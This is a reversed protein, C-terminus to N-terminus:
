TTNSAVRREAARISRVMGAYAMPFTKGVQWIGHELVIVGLEDASEASEFADAMARGMAETGHATWNVARVTHGNLQAVGEARIVALIEDSHCHVITRCEKLFPNNSDLLRRHVHWHSVLESSPPKDPDGYYLFEGAREEVVPTHSPILLGNKKDTHGATIVMMPRDPWFLIESLVIHTSSTAVESATRSAYERIASQAEAISSLDRADVPPFVGVWRPRVESGRRYLEEDDPNLLLPKPDLRLRLETEYSKATDRLLDRISIVTAAPSSLMVSVLNEIVQCLVALDMRQNLHIFKGVTVWASVSELFNAKFKRDLGRRDEALLDALARFLRTVYEQKGGRAHSRLTIDYRDVSRRLATRIEDSTDIDEIAALDRKHRAYAEARTGYLEVVVHAALALFVLPLVLSTWGHFATAQAQALWVSIGAVLFAFLLVPSELHKATNVLGVLFDKVRAQEPSFSIFKLLNETNYRGESPM